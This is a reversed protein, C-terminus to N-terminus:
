AIQYSQQALVDGIGALVVPMSFVDASVHGENIMRMLSSGAILADFDITIVDAGQAGDESSITDM